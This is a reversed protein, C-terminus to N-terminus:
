HEIFQVSKIMKDTKYIKTKATGTLNEEQLEKVYIQKNKNIKVNSISSDEVFQNTFTNGTKDISAGVTYLEEVDADTLATSYLRFDSMMCDETETAPTSKYTSNGLYLVPNDIYGTCAQTKLLSNNVYVKINSGDYTIVFHNWTNLTVAHGGFSTYNSSGNTRLIMSWFNKGSDRYFGIGNNTWSDFTGFLFHQANAAKPNVWFSITFKETKLNFDSRKLYGQQAFDIAKDYVPSNSSIKLSNVIQANNLFGSNDVVYDSAFTNDIYGPFEDAEIIQVDKIDFDYDYVQDKTAWGNNKFEINLKILNTSGVADAAEKTVYWTKSSVTMGDVVIGGFVYEIWGNGVKSTNVVEASSFPTNGAVCLRAALNGSTCKNVRVKMSAIYKTNNKLNTYSFSSYMCNVWMSSGTGTYTKKFNYGTENTLATITFYGSAKGKTEEGTYFNLNGTQYESDLKYHVVLGKSIEHIEKQSLCHNYIRVDNFNGKYFDGYGFLYINKDTGMATEMSNIQNVTKKLEGNLYFKVNTGDATMSFHYWVDNEMNFLSTNNAVISTSSGFFYHLSSTSVEVRCTGANNGFGFLSNWAGPTNPKVWFAISFESPIKELPITLRQSGNTSFCQKTVKGDTYSSSGTLTGTIGSCGYNNLNGNLPFWAVLSM